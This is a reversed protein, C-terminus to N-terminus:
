ATVSPKPPQEPGISNTSTQSPLQRAHTHSHCSWGTDHGCCTGAGWGVAGVAQRDRWRLSITYTTRAAYATPRSYGTAFTVRRLASHRASRKPARGARPAPGGRGVTQDSVVASQVVRPAIRGRRAGEERRCPQHPHRCGEDKRGMACARKQDRLRKMRTIARQQEPVAILEGGEGVRWGFPVTGGLYPGRQRRTPPGQRHEVKATFFSVDNATTEIRLVIGLKDYMKITEASLTRLNIVFNYCRNLTPALSRRFTASSRCM